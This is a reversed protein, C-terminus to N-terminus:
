SPITFSGVMENAGMRDWDMVDFQLGGISNGVDDLNFRFLEEWDASYTNKKTTTKHEQGAFKVVCFPDCSGGFGDM